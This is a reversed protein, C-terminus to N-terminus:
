LQTKVKKSRPSRKDTTPEEEEESEEEKTKKTSSKKTGAVSKKAEKELPEPEEATKHEALQPISKKLFAPLVFAASHLETTYYRFEADLCSTERVPVKCGLNKSKRGRKKEDSKKACIIFGIQGCPYTPIQTTAYEVTDFLPFVQNMLDTILQLNNWMSEGQTSIRGGAKLAKEMDVFFPREFLAAAPGVPDSSDCVIVDFKGANEEKKIFECADGCILNVKSDEWASRVSPFYKKAAEIVVKDIECIYVEKVSSHKLVERIVGGDGGGIVLVTQPNPHSFMPIHTIMEQYAMEDRETFQIVGDITLVNGFAKSRFVCVHQYDSQKDMLLEEVELSMAAGSWQSNVEM